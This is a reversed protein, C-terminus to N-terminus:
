TPGSQASLVNLQPVALATAELKGLPDSPEDIAAIIAAAMLRIVDTDKALWARLADKLAHRHGAGPTPSARLTAGPFACLLRM